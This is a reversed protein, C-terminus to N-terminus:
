DGFDIDTASTWDLVGSNLGRDSKEAVQQGMIPRAATQELHQWLAFARAIDDALPGQTTSLKPSSAAVSESAVSAADSATPPADDITTESLWIEPEGEGGGISVGANLASVVLQADLPSLENDCSVDLFLPPVNGPLPPNPFTRIGRANLENIILAADLVVLEFDFDVDLPNFPNQWGCENRVISFSTVDIVELMTADVITVTVEYVGMDLYTHSAAIPGGGTGPPLALPMVNGDGWDITATLLSHNGPYTFSADILSISNGFVAANTRGANVLLTVNFNSIQDSSQNGAFDRVQGGVRRVQVAGGPLSDGDDGYFYRVTNNPLVTLRDVTVGTITIDDTGFTSADVGSVDSWQIDMYGQDFTLNTGPTPSILASTPGQQDLTVTFSVDTVAPEVGSRVVLTNPGSQLAVNAISFAGHIDAIATGDDFGDGDVDLRVSGLPDTTGIITVPSLNTIDDDPSGSNAAPALQAQLPPADHGVITVVDLVVESDLSGFALLDFYLTALTNPAVGTLDVTVVLPFTLTPSQGSVAAGTV